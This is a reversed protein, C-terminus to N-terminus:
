EVNKKVGARIKKPSWSWPVLYIPLWGGIWVATALYPNNLALGISLVFVGLLLLRRVHEKAIVDSALTPSILRHGASAYWWLLLYLLHVLSLLGAYFAAVDPSFHDYALLYTPFPLVAIFMLVALNLFFLGTDFRVIYRYYRHHALLFAGISYFSVLYVIFPGKLALLQTWITERPNVGQFPFVVVLLTAAFAFVGDSFAVLRGLSSFQGDAEQM